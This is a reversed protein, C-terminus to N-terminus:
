VGDLRLLTPAAAANRATPAMTAHDETTHASSWAPPPSPPFVTVTPTDVADTDGPDDPDV